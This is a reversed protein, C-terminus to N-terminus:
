VFQRTLQLCIRQRVQCCSPALHLRHRNSTCGGFKKNVAILRVGFFIHRFDEHCLGNLLMDIFSTTTALLSSGADSSQVLELLHQPRFGDSGAASSAPFSRIMKMVEAETAQYASHEISQSVSHSM